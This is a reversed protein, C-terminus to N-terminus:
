TYLSMPKHYMLFDNHASFTVHFVTTSEYQLMIISNPKTTYKIVFTYAFVIILRVCFTRTLLNFRHDPPRLLDQDAFV